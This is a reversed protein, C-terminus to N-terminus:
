KDEEALLVIAQRLLSIAAKQNENAQAENDYDIRILCHLILSIRDVAQVVRDKRTM